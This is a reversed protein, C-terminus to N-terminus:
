LGLLEKRALTDNGVLAEFHKLEKGKVPNVQICTRTKTNFAVQSLTEYSIEGWGKSRMIQVNCSKPLQKKVSEFTAGFYRTGKFYASFLPADVLYIKGQEFLEPMLRHLLTLLLVTIHQGDVDADPMIFVKNVRLKHETGEKRHSDFNYGISTLINQVAKSELLTHLKMKASNAIKGTLALVEQFSPDRAKKSSNHVVCGNGLAFNHHKPSTLDYVPVPTDLQLRRIAKIKM